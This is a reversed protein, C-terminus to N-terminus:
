CSHGDRLYQRGDLHIRDNEMSLTWEYVTGDHFRM